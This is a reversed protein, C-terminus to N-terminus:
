KDGKKLTIKVWEGDDVKAKIAGEQIIRLGESTSNVLNNEKLTRAMGIASQKDLQIEQMQEVRCKLMM